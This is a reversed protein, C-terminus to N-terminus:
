RAARVESWPGHSGPAAASTAGVPERRVDVPEVVLDRWSQERPRFAPLCVLVLVFPLVQVRQRVLIGANAFASFGYVFLVTYTCCLLVYPTRLISRISGLIRSWSTLVLAALFASEAAAILAQLNTAQWPFPRFMVGVFAEPFRSPSLDTTSGSTFQSGGQGTQQAVENLTTEVADSNFEDVGFFQELQGVAVVLGAGLLVIVALKGIPFLISADKPPRKLLVAVFTAVSILAAVHPRVMYLMLAGTAIVPLGGSAHTLLRSSGYAVVGLALCMWAEKGISSPWFLLSPLFLVLVAYRRHDGEPCARVFARHFLYLGWFGFWAYVFFGGISTPGTITYLWATLGQIFGTGQVPRGLDLAWDGDRIQRAFASGTLHYMNADATGDYVDFAVAYRALSAALKLGLAWWFLRAIWTDAEHAVARRMMPVTIVVLGIAVPFAAWTDYSGYEMLWTMVGVVVAVAAVLAVTLVSPADAVRRVREITGDLGDLKALPGSGAPEVALYAHSNTATLWARPRAGGAVVRPLVALWRSSLM